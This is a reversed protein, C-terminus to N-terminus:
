YLQWYRHAEALDHAHDYSLAHLRHFQPDDPPRGFVRQFRLVDDPGHDTVAWYFCSALRGVLHPAEQRLAPLVGEALRFAPALTESDALAARVQRLQLALSGGHLRDLQQQRDTEIQPLNAAAVRLTVDHVPGQGLCSHAGTLAVNCQRQCM